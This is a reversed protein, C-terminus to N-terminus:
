RSYRKFEKGDCKMCAEPAEGGYHLTGCNVCKYTCDCGREKKDTCNCGKTQENKM